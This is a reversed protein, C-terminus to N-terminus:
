AETGPLPQQLWVSHQVVWGSAHTFADWTVHTLAGLLVSVAMALWACGGQPWANTVLPALAHRHRPPLPLILTAGFRQLLAALVVGTPMCVVLLGLFTHAFTALDFRHLHYGFDPAGSGVVLGVFSLPRPCWRRLPLVAAPHAFTWPM